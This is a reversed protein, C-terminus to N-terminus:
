KESIVTYRSSENPAPPAPPIRLSSGSRGGAAIAHHTADEAADLLGGKKLASFAWRAPSADARLHEFDGLARRCREVKAAPVRDAAVSCVLWAMRVGLTATDDCHAAIADNLESLAGRFDAISRSRSQIAAQVTLINEDAKALVASCGHRRKLDANTSRMANIKQMATELASEDRVLASEAEIARQCSDLIASPPIYAHHHAPM